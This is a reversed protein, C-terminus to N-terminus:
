FLEVSGAHRDDRAVPCPQLPEPLALDGEGFMADAILDTSRNLRLQIHDILQEAMDHMQMSVVARGLTDRVQQATDSDVGPLMSVQDFASILQETLLHIGNTLLSRLRWLDHAATLMDDQFAAAVLLDIGKAPDDLVHTEQDISM